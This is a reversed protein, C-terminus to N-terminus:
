FIIKLNPYVKDLNAELNNKATAIFKIQLVELAKGTVTTVGTSSASAVSLPGTAQALKREILEQIHM